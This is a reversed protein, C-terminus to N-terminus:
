SMDHQMRRFSVQRSVLYIFFLANVVFLVLPYLATVLTVNTLAFLAILFKLSNLGYTTATEEMAKLRSKRITPTLGVIFVGSALIVALEASTTLRWAVLVLLAILLCGWDFRTINREGYKFSFFFILINAVAAVGTVWAGPGGNHTAQQFFIFTNLLSWVLWTIAHPKTKGRFINRFYFSYSILALVVTVWGLIITM